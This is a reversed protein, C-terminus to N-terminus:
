NGKLQLPGAKAPDSDGVLREPPHSPTTGVDYYGHISVGDLYKAIGLPQLPDRIVVQGRKMKQALM